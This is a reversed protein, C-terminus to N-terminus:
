RVSKSRSAARKEEVRRKDELEQKKLVLRKRRSYGIKAVDVPSLHWLESLYFM